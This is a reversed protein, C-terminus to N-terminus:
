ADKLVHYAAHLADYADSTDLSEVLEERVLPALSQEVIYKNLARSVEEKSTHMPNIGSVKIFHGVQMLANLAVLHKTDLQEVRHMFLSQGLGDPSSFDEPSMTMVDELVRRVKGKIARKSRRVVQRVAVAVGAVVVVGAVGIVVVKTRIRM